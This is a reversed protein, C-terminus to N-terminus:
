SKPQVQGKNYRRASEVKDGWVLISITICTSVTNIPYSLCYKYVDSPIKRTRDTTKGWSCYQGIHGVTIWSEVM